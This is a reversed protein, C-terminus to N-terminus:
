HTHNGINQTPCLVCHACYNSNGLFWPLRVLGGSGMILPVNLTLELGQGAKRPDSCLENTRGPSM